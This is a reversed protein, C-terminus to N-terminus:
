RPLSGGHPPPSRAWMRRVVRFRITRGSKLSALETFRTLSAEIWDGMAAYKEIRVAEHALATLAAGYRNDAHRAAERHSTFIAGDATTWADIKRM